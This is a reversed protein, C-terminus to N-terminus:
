SEPELSKKLYAPMIKYAAVPDLPPKNRDIQLGKAEAEKDLVM